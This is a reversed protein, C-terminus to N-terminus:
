YGMVDMYSLTLKQWELEQHLYFSSYSLEELLHGWGM